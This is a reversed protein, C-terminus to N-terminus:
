GGIGGSEEPGAIVFSLNKLDQNRKEIPILFFTNVTKATNIMSFM